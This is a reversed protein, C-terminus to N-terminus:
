LSANINGNLGAHMWRIDIDRSVLPQSPLMAPYRAAGEGINYANFLQSKLQSLRAAIPQNDYSLRSLLLSPETLRMAVLRFLSTM